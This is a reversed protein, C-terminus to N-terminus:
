NNAIEDKVFGEQTFRETHTFGIDKLMKQAEEFAFDLKEPDHCDSSVTVSGGLKLLEELIFRAPYPTSKYGRAMAGTNLELRPCVRTIRRLADLAVERYEPSDENILGFKTILDFHGVLDPKTECVHRVLEDYYAKAFALEDENYYKEIIEKQIKASFDVLLYEEGSKVAHVSAIVYDYLERKCESFADLELGIFIDLSDRSEERLKKVYSVYEEEVGEKMSSEDYCAYSHDSIGLSVFGCKIASNIM